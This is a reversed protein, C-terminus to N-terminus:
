TDPELANDNAILPYKSYGLCTESVFKQLENSRKLSNLLIHIALSHQKKGVQTQSNYFPHLLGVYLM